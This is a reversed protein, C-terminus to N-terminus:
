ASCSVFSQGEAAVTSNMPTSLGDCTDIPDGHLLVAQGGVKVFASGATSSPRGEGVPDTIALTSPIPAPSPPNFSKGSPGAHGGGPATEEPPLSSRSGATAVPKGGISVFDSLQGTMKGRYDFRGTGTYAIQPPAPPPAPNTANGAVKHTDTGDVPDDKVVVLKPM